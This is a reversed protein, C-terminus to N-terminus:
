PDGTSGLALGAQLGASCGARRWCAAAVQDDRQAGVGLREVPVRAVIGRGVQHREEGLGPQDPDVPDGVRHLRPEGLAPRGRGVAQAVRDLEPLADGEGVARRECGFIDHKRQGRRVVLLAAADDGVRHADAPLVERGLRHIRGRHDDGERPREAGAQPQEVVQRDQRLVLNLRERAFRPQRDVQRVLEFRASM